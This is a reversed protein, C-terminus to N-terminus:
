FGGHLSGWCVYVPIISAFAPTSYQISSNQKWSAEDFGPAGPRSGDALSTVFFCTHCFGSGLNETLRWSMFELLLLLHSRM